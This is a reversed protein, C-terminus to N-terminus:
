RDLHELHTYPRTPGARGEGMRIRRIIVGLIFAGNLSFQRLTKMLLLSQPSTLHSLSYSCRVTRGFTWLEFGLLRIPPECSDM